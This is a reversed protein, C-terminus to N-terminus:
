KLHTHLKSAQHSKAAEHRVLSTIACKITTRCHKCYPQSKGMEKKFGLWDSFSPNSLWSECFNQEYKVAKRTAAARQVNEASTSSSRSPKDEGEVELEPVEGPENDIDATSTFDNRESDGDDASKRMMSAREM